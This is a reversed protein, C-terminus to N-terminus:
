LIKRKLVSKQLLNEPCDSEGIAWNKLLSKEEKNFIFDDVKTQSINSNYPCVKQCIDCGYIYNINKYILHILQRFIATLNTHTLYKAWKWDTIDMFM